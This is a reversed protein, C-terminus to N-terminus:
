CANKIQEIVWNAGHEFGQELGDMRETSESYPCGQKSAENSVEKDTPLLKSVIDLVDNDKVISKGDLLANLKGKAYLNLNGNEQLEQLHKIQDEIRKFKEM